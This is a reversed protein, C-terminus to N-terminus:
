PPTTQPPLLVASQAAYFCPCSRQPRGSFDARVIDFVRVLGLLALQYAVISTAGQRCIFFKHEGLPLVIEYVSAPLFTIYDSILYPLGKSGTLDGCLLSVLHAVFQGHAKGLALVGKYHCRVSVPLVDVVM